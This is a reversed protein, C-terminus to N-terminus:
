RVIIGKNLVTMNSIEHHQLNTDLWSVKVVIKKIVGEMAIHTIENVQWHLEFRHQDYYQNGAAIEGGQDSSLLGFEDASDTLYRLENLKYEMLAWASSYQSQQLVIQAQTRKLATTSFLTLSIIFASVIVEILGGGKQVQRKYFLNM